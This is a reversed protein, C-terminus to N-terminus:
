YDQVPYPTAFIGKNEKDCEDCYWGDVDAFHFTQEECYNCYADINNAM